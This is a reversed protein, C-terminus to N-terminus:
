NMPARNAAKVPTTKFVERTQIKHIMPPPSNDDDESEMETGIKYEEGKEEVLSMEDLVITASEKRPLPQQM